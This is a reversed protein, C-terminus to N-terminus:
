GSRRSIVCDRGSHAILTLQIVFVACRYEGRRDCGVPCVGGLPNGACRKIGARDILLGVLDPLLGFRSDCALRACGQRNSHKRCSLGTRKSWQVRSCHEAGPSGQCGADQWGKSTKNECVTQTRCWCDGSRSGSHTSSLRNAAFCLMLQVIAEPMAGSM